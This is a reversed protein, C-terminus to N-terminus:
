CREDQQSLQPWILSETLLQTKEKHFSQTGIKEFLFSFWFSHAFFNSLSFCVTEKERFGFSQRRKHNTHSKWDNQLMYKRFYIPNIQSCFPQVDDFFFYSIFHLFMKLFLRRVDYFCLFAFSCSFDFIHCDFFLWSAFFVFCLFTHSFPFCLFRTETERMCERNNM